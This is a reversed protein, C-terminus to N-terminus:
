VQTMKVKVGYDIINQATGWCPKCWRQGTADITMDVDRGYGINGQVSLVETLNQEEDVSLERKCGKCTFMSMERFPLDLDVVWPANVPKYRFNMIAANIFLTEKGFTIAEGSDSSLDLKAARDEFVQDRDIRMRNFKRNVWDMRGAGWGEHIHGFCHLLPRCRLDARMLQICGVPILDITKDLILKPPGHTMIIDVRPFDPVPNVAINKIGEPSRPNFRDEDRKYPFAWNCFEPQYPSSYIQVCV